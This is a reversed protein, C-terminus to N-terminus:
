IKITQIAFTLTEGNFDFEENKDDELYFTITNLVSEIKKKYHISEPECFVKYGPPEDLVFSYLIPQTVGNLVSGYIIICKLQIKDMISLNLFKEGVDEIYSKYDWYPPFGLITSFFSKGDFRMANIERRVILKTKMPNNDSEIIISDSKDYKTNPQIEGRIEFEKEFGRSLIESIYQFTYIGTSIEYTIYKSFFHKIILQIDEENM